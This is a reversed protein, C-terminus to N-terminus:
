RKFEARFAAALRDIYGHLPKPTELKVAQWVNADASRLFSKLRLFGHFKIAQDPPLQLRYAGDVSATLEQVVTTYSLAPGAPEQEGAGGAETNQGRLGVKHQRLSEAVRREKESTPERYVAARVPRREAGAM